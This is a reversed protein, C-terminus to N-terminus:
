VFGPNRPRVGGLLRRRGEWKMAEFEFGGWELLKVKALGGGWCACRPWSLLEGNANKITATWSESKCRHVRFNLSCRSLDLCNVRMVCGCSLRVQGRLGKRITNTPCEPLIPFCYRDYSTNPRLVSLCAATSFSTLDVVSPNQFSSFRIGPLQFLCYM